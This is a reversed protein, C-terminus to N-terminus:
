NTGTLTYINLSDKIIKNLALMQQQLIIKENQLGELKKLLEIEKEASLIAAFRRYEKVAKIVKTNHM